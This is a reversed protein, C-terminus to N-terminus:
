KGCMTKIERFCEDVAKQLKLSKIYIKELDVFDNEITKELAEHCGILEYLMSKFESTKDQTNM